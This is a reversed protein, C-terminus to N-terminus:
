KALYTAWDIHNDLPSTFHFDDAILKDIAAHDKKVYALYRALAVEPPDHPMKMGKSRRM